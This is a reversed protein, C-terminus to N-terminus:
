IFITAVITAALLAGIVWEATYSFSWERIM